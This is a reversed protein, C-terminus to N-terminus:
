CSPRTGSDLLRRCGIAVWTSFDAVNNPERVKLRLVVRSINSQYSDMRVVVGSLPCQEYRRTRFIEYFHGHVLCSLGGRRSRSPHCTDCGFADANTVPESAFEEIPDKRDFAGFPTERPM